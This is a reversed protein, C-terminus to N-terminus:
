NLFGPLLEAAVSIWQRVLFLSGTFVFAQEEMKIARVSRSVPQLCVGAGWTAAAGVTSGAVAAVMVPM